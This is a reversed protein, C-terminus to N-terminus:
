ACLREVHHGGSTVVRLQQCLDFCPFAELGRRVTFAVGGDEGATSRCAIVYTM